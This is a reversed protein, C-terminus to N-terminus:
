RIRGRIRPGLFWFAFWSMENRRAAEDISAGHFHSDQPELHGRVAFVLELLPVCVVLAATSRGGPGRESPRDAAQHLDGGHTAVTGSM